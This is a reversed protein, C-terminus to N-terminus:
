KGLLILLNALAFVIVLVWNLVAVEAVFYLATACFIMTSFTLWYVKTQNKAIWELSRKM